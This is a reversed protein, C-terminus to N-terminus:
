SGSTSPIILAERSRRPYVFYVIYCASAGAVVASLSDVATSSTYAGGWGSGAAEGAYILVASWIFCGAVTLAVFPKLGMRFLGAPLSIVTRLVPVFRAAFVTWQGSREFWREARDLAGAHLRFAGLLRLVFPRGLLSALYYDALAGALGAATSVAVAAWFDMVGVSVLYGALPLVVESPVPLSASELTMLAFLSVYGYDILFAKLSPTSLVSTVIASFWAGFPLEVIHAVQLLGIALSAVALALIYRSRPVLPERSERAEGL